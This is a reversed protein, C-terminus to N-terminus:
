ITRISHLIGFSRMYPSHTPCYYSCRLLLQSSVGWTYAASCLGASCWILSVTYIYIYIYLYTYIYIYIYIHYSCYIQYWAVHLYMYYKWNESDQHTDSTRHMHNCARFSYPRCPARLVTTWAQKTVRLSLRFQLWIGGNWINLWKNVIIHHACTTELTNWRYFRLAHLVNQCPVKSLNISHRTASACHFYTSPM